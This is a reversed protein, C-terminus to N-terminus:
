YKCKRNGNVFVGILTLLNMSVNAGQTNPIKVFFSKIQTADGLSGLYAIVTDGDCANKGVVRREHLHMKVVSGKHFPFNLVTSRRTLVGQKRFVTQALTLM